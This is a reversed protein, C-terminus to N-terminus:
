SAALFQDGVDVVVAQDRDGAVALRRDGDHKPLWTAVSVTVEGNGFATSASPTRRLRRPVVEDVFEHQLLEFSSRRGGDGGHVSASNM